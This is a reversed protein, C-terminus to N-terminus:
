NKEIILVEQCLWEKKLIIDGSTEIRVPTYGHGLAMKV